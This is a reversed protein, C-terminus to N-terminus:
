ENARRDNLQDDETPVLAISAETVSPLKGIESIAIRLVQDITKANSLRSTIENIKQQKQANNQTEKILRANELAISAQTAVLGLFESDERSLENGEVELNLNGITGERIKLPLNVNTVLDNSKVSSENVFEFQFNESTLSSDWWSQQLFTRNLINIEELASNTKSLLEANEIAIALNDAVSQLILLDNEDFANVHDSQITVAGLVDEGASLPLVLESKTLPLYPNDFHIEEKTSDLALRPNGTQTVWGVMSYGGVALHYKSSLLQKGTEGTGYKLVANEKLKDLLFVGVYYLNFNAKLLESVQCILDDTDTIRSVKKSIESATRLQQLRKELNITQSSLESSLTKSETQLKRVLVRTDLFRSKLSSLALNGVMGVLAILTAEIVIELIRVSDDSQQSYASIQVIVWILLTALSLLLGIRVSGRFLIITCLFSFGLLVLFSIASWGNQVFLINAMLYFVVLAVISRGWYSLNRFIVLFGSVLFVVLSGSLVTWKNLPNTTFLSLICLLFGAITSAILVSQLIREQWIKLEDEQDLTLPTYKPLLSRLFSM